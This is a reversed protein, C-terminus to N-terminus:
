RCALAPAPAHVRACANPQTQWASLLVLAAPPDCQGESGRCSQWAANISPTLRCESRFFERMWLILRQGNRLIWIEVFFPMLSESPTDRMHLHPLINASLMLESAVSDELGLM